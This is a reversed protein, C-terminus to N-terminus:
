RCSFDASSCFYSGKDPAICFFKTVKCDSHFYTIDVKAVLGEEKRGHLVHGVDTEAHKAFAKTSSHDVRLEHRGIGDHAADFGGEVLHGDVLLFTGHADLDVAFVYVGHHLRCLNNLLPVGVDDVEVEATGHLLHGSFAGASSQQPVNRQHEVDCAVNDLRDVNGDRGLRSQSPVLLVVNNGIQGLLQLIAANLRQGNVAASRDCIYVPSASQVSMPSTFRFGRMCMGIM